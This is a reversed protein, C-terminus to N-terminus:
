LFQPILLKVSSLFKNKYPISICDNKKETHSIHYVFFEIHSTLINSSYTKKNLQSLYYLVSIWKKVPRGSM